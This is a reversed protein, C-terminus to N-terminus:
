RWARGTLAFTPWTSPMVMGRARLVSCSVTTPITASGICVDDYGDNNVDGVSIGHVGQGFSSSGSGSALVNGKGDVVEWKGSLGKHLWRTSLETGNWDVAWVFCNAYYGRQFVATPLKDLGDLYAACANFREARNCGSDGFFSNSSTASTPFDVGSRSPSYWITHMAEGTLGNFVTLFEEGDYVRGKSNVYTKANDVVKIAADGAETVYKGKGDTSGAGTKCILEAKGDGDFDYVVMQTTHNGSRINLGLNINKEWLPTGDMRYASIIVPSSYGDKGSDRQNDPLWKLILEYNGDGDVDGVAMDDPRYRGTTNGSKISAPRKVDFSTFMNNWAKAESSEGTSSVIRYTDGSAGDADLFNTVDSIDGAIKNGNRYVDFALDKADSTFSRWSVLIGQSTKVAVPARNLKEKVQQASATALSLAALAAAYFFKSNM